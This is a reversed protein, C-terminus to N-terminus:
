LLYLCERRERLAPTGFGRCCLGLEKNKGATESKERGIDQIEFVTFGGQRRFM